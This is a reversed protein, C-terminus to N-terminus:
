RYREGKENTPTICHVTNPVCNHALVATRSYLCLVMSGSPSRAEFGNVELIGIVDHILEDAFRCCNTFHLGDGRGCQKEVEM